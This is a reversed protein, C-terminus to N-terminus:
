SIKNKKKKIIKFIYFNFLGNSIDTLYCIIDFITILFVVNQQAHNKLTDNIKKKKSNQIKITSVNMSM